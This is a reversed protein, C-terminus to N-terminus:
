RFTRFSLLLDILPYYFVTWILLIMALKEMQFFNDAFESRNEKPAGDFGFTVVNGRYDRLSKKKM